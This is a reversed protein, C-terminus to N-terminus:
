GEAREWILRIDPLGEDNEAGDGRGAEHFGERLYFRLAGTNAQHSRLELRPARAKAHDLLRRGLGQGRRGVAMYLGHVYGRDLALFGAIGTGQGEPELVHVWGRDVMTGAFSLIEAGTYLRPMWAAGDTFQSLIAGVGGADTPQAARIM